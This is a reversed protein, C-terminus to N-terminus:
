KSTSFVRGVVAPMDRIEWLLLMARFTTYSAEPVRIALTKERSQVIVYKQINKRMQTQFIRQICPHYTSSPPMARGMRMSPFM